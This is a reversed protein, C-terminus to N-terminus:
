RRGITIGQAQAAEVVKALREGELKWRVEGWRDGPGDFYSEGEMDCGWLHITKAGRLIAGQIAYFVTKKIPRPFWPIGPAMLKWGFLNNVGYRRWADFNMPDTWVYPQLRKIRDWIAWNWSEREAEAGLSLPGDLACFYDPAIEHRIAANVSVVEGPPRETLKSLSPGPLLINWVRM